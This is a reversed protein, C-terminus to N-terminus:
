LLAIEYDANRKSFTPQIRALYSQVYLFSEFPHISMRQFGICTKMLSIKMVKKLDNKSCNLKNERYDSIIRVVKHRRSYNPIRSM